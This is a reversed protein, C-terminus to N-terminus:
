FKKKNKSNNKSEVIDKNGYKIIDEDKIYNLDHLQSAIEDYAVEIQNILTREDSEEITASMAADIVKNDDILDSIENLLNEDYSINYNTLVNAIDDKTLEFEM